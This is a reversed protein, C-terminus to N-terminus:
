WRIPQGFRDLYHLGKKGEQAIITDVIQPVVEEITFKAEPGGLDTQVWGPAILLLTRDNARRVAFSRMLMNLAAKSARYVEFEGTENNAVSGQGSSM